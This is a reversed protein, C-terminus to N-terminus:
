KATVAAATPTVNGSVFQWRNLLMKSCALLCQQKVEDDGSKLLALVAPRVGLTALLQRGQPHAVAFQGLDAVAVALTTNDAGPDSLLEALAKILRFDGTEFSTAHEKWFEPSHM